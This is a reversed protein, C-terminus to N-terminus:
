IARILQQFVLLDEEAKSIWQQLYTLEEGSM